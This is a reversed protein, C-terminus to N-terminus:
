LTPLSALLTPVGHACPYFAFSLSLSLSLSLLSRSLLFFSLFFTTFVLDNTPKKKEIVQQPITALTGFSVVIVGNTAGAM